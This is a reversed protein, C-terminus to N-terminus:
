QLCQLFLPPNWQWPVQRNDRLYVGVADCRMQQTYVICNQGDPAVYIISQDTPTDTRKMALSLGEASLRACAMDGEADSGIPAALITEAGFRAAAVAQNAGKGGLDVTRSRALLTEGPKPLRPVSFSVDISCNGIVIVKM